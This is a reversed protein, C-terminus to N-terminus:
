LRGQDLRAIIAIAVTGGVTAIITGLAHIPFVPSGAYGKVVSSGSAVVAADVTVTGYVSQDRITVTGAGTYTVGIVNLTYEAPVGLVTSFPYPSITALGSVITAYAFQDGPQALEDPLPPAM